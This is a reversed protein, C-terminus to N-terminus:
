NWMSNFSSMDSIVSREAEEASLCRIINPRSLHEIELPTPETDTYMIYGRRSLYCYRTTNKESLFSYVQGGCVCSLDDLSLRNVGSRIIGM